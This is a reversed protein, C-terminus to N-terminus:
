LKIGLAILFLGGITLFIATDKMHELLRENRFIPPFFEALISQNSQLMIYSFWFLISFALIFGGIIFLFIKM